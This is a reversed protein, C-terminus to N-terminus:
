SSGTASPAGSACTAASRPCVFRVSGSETQLSSTEEVYEKSEKLGHGTSTRYTKIAEMKEGRRIAEAVDAPVDAFPDFEVGNEELLADVKGDLRSLSELRNRIVSLRFLGVLLLLIILVLLLEIM